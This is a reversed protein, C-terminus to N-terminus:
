EIGAIKNFISAAQMDAEIWLEDANNILARLIEARIFDRLLKACELQTLEPKHDEM